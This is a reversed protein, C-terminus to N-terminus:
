RTSKPLALFQKGYSILVEDPNPETWGIQKLDRDREQSLRLERSQVREREREPSNYIEHDNGSKPDHSVRESHCVDPLSTLHM